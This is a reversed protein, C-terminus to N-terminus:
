KKAADSMTKEAIIGLKTAECYVYHAAENSQIDITVTRNDLIADVM